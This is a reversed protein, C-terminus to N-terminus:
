WGPLQRLIVSHVWIRGRWDAQLPVYIPLGKYTESVKLLIERQLLESKSLKETSELLFKGEGSLYDLLKDNIKLRTSSPDM